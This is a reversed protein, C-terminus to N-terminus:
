KLKLLQSLPKQFLSKYSMDVQYIMHKSTHFNKNSYAKFDDYWSDIAYIADSNKFDNTFQDYGEFSATWNVNDAVIFAPNGTGPYCSERKHIFLALHSDDPLFWMPDFKQKLLTNGYISVGLFGM